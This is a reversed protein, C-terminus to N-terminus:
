QKDPTDSPAECSEKLGEAKLCQLSQLTYRNYRTVFPFVFYSIHHPFTRSRRHPAQPTHPFILLTKSTSIHHERSVVYFTALQSLNACTRSQRHSAECIHLYSIGNAIHLHAGEHLVHYIPSTISRMHAFILNQFFKYRTVVTVITVFPFVLYSITM